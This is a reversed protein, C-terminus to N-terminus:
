LYVSFRRSYCLMGWVQKGSENMNDKQWMHKREISRKTALSEKGSSNLLLNCVGLGKTGFLSYERLVLVNRCMAM